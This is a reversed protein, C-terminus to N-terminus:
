QHELAEDKTIRYAFDPLETHVLFDSKFNPDPKRWPGYESDLVEEANAPIVVEVGHVQIMKLGNPALLKFLLGTNARENPYERDPFWRLFVEDLYRSDEANYSHLFVDISIGISDMVTFELFRGKYDFGHVYGYGAGLFTRLVNVLSDKGPMICIDIDDDNKIFGGDRVFGLLTGADCYYKIGANTLTAHMRALVDYGYKHLRRRKRPISYAKWLKQIYPYLFRGVPSPKLVKKVFAKIRDLMLEKYQM